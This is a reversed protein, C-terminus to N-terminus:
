LYIKLDTTKSDIMWVIDTMGEQSIQTYEGIKNLIEQLNDTNRAASEKAVENFISISSLNSGIEDHLDRAINDRIYQLNLRQQKKYYYISYVISSTILIYFLFAYWEKYWPNKITILIELINKNWLGNPDTSRVQFTYNGPILNAYTTFRRNGSLIWEEDLGVMKYAYHLDENRFFTLAAFQFSLYNQDYQLVYHSDIKVPVNNVYFHTLSITFPKSTYNISDPHFM